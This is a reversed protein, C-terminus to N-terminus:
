AYLQGKFIQKGNPNTRKARKAAPQGHNGDKREKPQDAEQTDPLLNRNGNRENRKVHNERNTDPLQTNQDDFVKLDDLQIGHNDNFSQDDVNSSEPMTFSDKADSSEDHQSRSRNMVLSPSVRNPTPINDKNQQGFHTVLKRKNIGISQHQFADLPRNSEFRISSSQLPQIKAVSSRNNDNNFGKIGFTEVTKLFTELNEEKINVHGNYIYQLLDRLSHKSVGTLFVLSCNSFFQLKREM